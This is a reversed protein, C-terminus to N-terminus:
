IPKKAILLGFLGQIPKGAQDLKHLQGVSEKYELVSWGSDQYYHYLEERKALYTFSVPLDYPQAAIPFVLLHMGGPKTKDQLEQLLAPIREPKLFQLSVTSFIIDFPESMAPMPLHLDHVIAKVKTLREAQVINDITAIASANYDIGTVQHNLLACYLLNRGSGCGVDLINLPTSDNIYHKLFYLVDSHVSGLKHKKSFYRHKECYFTLQASFDASPSAIKHWAAPPIIVEPHNNDLPQRSLVKESGDLFVLEGKGSLQKLVGWTGEKTSHKNLFFTSKTQPNIPLEKYCIYNNMNM